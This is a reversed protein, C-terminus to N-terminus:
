GDWDVTICQKELDVNLIFIDIVFPILYRTQDEVVMVDKGGTPMFQSVIGLYIGHQNYTTCGILDHWYYQKQPTQALASRPTGIPCQNLQHAQEKNHIQPTKITFYHNKHSDYQSISLPLWYDQLKYYLEVYHFLNEPPDTFSQIKLEGHSGFPSTVEGLIVMDSATPSM